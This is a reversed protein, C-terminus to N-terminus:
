KKAYNLLGTLMKHITEARCTLDHCDDDSMFKLRNSLSIQYKLEAVSGRAIGIFQKLEGHTIESLNSNISVAARRMQNTLGFQESKPFQETITYINLALADAYKFVDLEEIHRM